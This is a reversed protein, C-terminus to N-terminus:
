SSTTEKTPTQEATPTQAPSQSGTSKIAKSIMNRPKWLRFYEEHAKSDGELNFGMLEFLRLQERFGFNPDV